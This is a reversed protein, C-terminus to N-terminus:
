NTKCFRIIELISERHLDEFESTEIVSRYNENIFLLCIKKLRDYNYCSAFKFIKSANEIELSSALYNELKTKLLDVSFM